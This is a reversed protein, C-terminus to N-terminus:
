IGEHLEQHLRALLAFFEHAPHNTVDWHFVNLAILDPGENLFLFAVFGGEFRVVVVDIGVAENGDFPVGFQNEVKGEAPAALRGCVGERPAQPVGSARLAELDAGVSELRVRLAIAVVRLSRQSKECSM